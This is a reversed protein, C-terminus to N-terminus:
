LFGLCQTLQAGRLISERVRAFGRASLGDRIAELRRLLFAPDSAVFRLATDHARNQIGGQEYRHITILGWGLLRAMCRQSLGYRTRICVIESATLLGHAQRYADYAKHRQYRDLKAYPIASLCNPCIAVAVEVTVSESKVVFEQM